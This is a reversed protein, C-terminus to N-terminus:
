ARNMTRQLEQAQEALERIADASQIIAETNKNVAENIGSMSQSIDESVTTQENAASAIQHIMNTNLSTVSAIENLSDESQKAFESTQSIQKVVRKVEEQNATSSDQISRVSDSVERTADMTKEALKRVEDAVVAFGRGAEGARAAEIAANLALLNTQDAIDTIVNIISGIGASLQDLREMNQTLNAASGTLTKMAQSMQGINDIGEHAKQLVANSQEATTVANHAVEQVSANMETMATSTREISERQFNSGEVIFETQASLQETASAVRSAIATAQVSMEKIADSQQQVKTIDNLFEIYGVAKHDADYLPSAFVDFHMNKNNVICPAVANIRSGKAISTNGLCGEKGCVPSNFLSGCDKGIADSIGLINKASRNMYIIKNDPTATFISASMNDLLEQYSHSLNNVSTVLKNFGGDFKSDDAKSILYGSSIKNSTQYIEDVISNITVLITRIANVLQGIEDKKNSKINATLNGKSVEIAFATSQEIPKIVAQQTFLYSAIALIITIFMCGMAIYESQTFEDVVEQALTNTRTSLKTFFTNIPAMIKTVEDRYQQGFVLEMAKQQDPSAEVTFNGANDKFKGRLANVAETEIGILTNSLKNSEELLAFEEATLGYKKLLDLLSIREGPAVSKSQPRAVKGARIDVINNYETMFAEDNNTVYLRVNDTLSESSDRLERSLEMLIDNNENVKQIKQFANSAAYLFYLSVFIMLIVLVNSIFFTTRIKM